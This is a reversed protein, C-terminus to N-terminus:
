ATQMIYYNRLLWACLITTSVVYNPFAYMARERERVSAGVCVWMCVCARMSVDYVNIRSSSLLKSSICSYLIIVFDFLLLVTM